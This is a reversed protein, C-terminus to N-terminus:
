NQRRHRRTIDLSDDLKGGPSRSIQRGFHGLPGLFLSNVSNTLEIVGEDSLQNRRIELDRTSAGPWALGQTDEGDLKNALLSQWLLYPRREVFDAQDLDQSSFRFNWTTPEAGSGVSVSKHYSSTRQKTKRKSSLQLFPSSREAIINEESTSLINCSLIASPCHCALSATVTPYIVIPLLRVVCCVSRAYM